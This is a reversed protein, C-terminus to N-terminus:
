DLPSEVACTMLASVCSPDQSYQIFILGTWFSYKLKASFPGVLPCKVALSM